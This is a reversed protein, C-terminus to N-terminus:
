SPAAADDACPGRPQGRGADARRHARRLDLVRGARRGAAAPVPRARRGRGFGPIAARSPAASSSTRARARASRTRSSAARRDGRVGRRRRRLRRGRGARRHAPLAALSTPSRCSTRGRRARARGAAHRRRTRRLRARPDAPVPGARACRGARRARSTPSGSPRTRGPRDPGRRHRPRPRPHPPAAPRLAPCDDDLLRRATRHPMRAPAQGPRSADAAPEKRCRRPVRAAAFVGFAAGRAAKADHQHARATLPGGSSRDVVLRDQAGRRIAASMTPALWPRSTRSSRTCGPAKRRM